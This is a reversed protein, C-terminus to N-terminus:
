RLRRSMKLCFRAAANFSHRSKIAQADKGLANECKAIKTQCLGVAPFPGEGDPRIIAGSISATSGDHTYINFEVVKATGDVVMECKILESAGAALLTQVTFTTVATVALLKAVRIRWGMM